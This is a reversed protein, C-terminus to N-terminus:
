GLNLLIGLFGILFVAGGIISAVTAVYRHQFDDHHQDDAMILTGARKIRDNQRRTGRNPHGPPPATYRSKGACDMEGSLNKERSPVPWFGM